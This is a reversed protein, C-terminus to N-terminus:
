LTSKGQTAAATPTTSSNSASSSNGLSTLTPTPPNSNTGQSAALIESRTEGFESLSPDTPNLRNPVLTAEDPVQRDDEIVAEKANNRSMPNRRLFDLYKSVSEESV